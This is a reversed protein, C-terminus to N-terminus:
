GPLTAGDVMVMLEAPEEATLASRNYDDTDPQGCKYALLNWLSMNARSRHVLIKVLKEHPMPLLARRLKEYRWDTPTDTTM